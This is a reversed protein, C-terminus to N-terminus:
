IGCRECVGLLLTEKLDLTFGDRSKVSSFLEASVGGDLHFFGGCRTCKMHLHGSCSPPCAARYTHGRGEAANEKIIKGSEALRPLLRYVTSKGPAEEGQRERLACAIEEATYSLDRNEELLELVARKQETNYEKMEEELNLIVRM